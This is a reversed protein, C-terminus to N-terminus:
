EGLRQSSTVRSDVFVAEYHARKERPSLSRTHSGKALMSERYDAIERIPKAPAGVAVCGPPIDRSIISGAGIVVNSGVTVGPLVITRSGIFVNNGITIPAVYEIDPYEERFVWLGGDHTIFSTDSASVHNGLTVLWPESGFDVDILRCGAGLRVGQGRAYSIPNTRKHIANILRGIM